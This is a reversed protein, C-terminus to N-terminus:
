SRFTFNKFKEFDKVLDVTNFNQTLVWKLCLFEIDSMSVLFRFKLNSGFTSLKSELHRAFSGFFLLYWRIIMFKPFFFNVTLFM